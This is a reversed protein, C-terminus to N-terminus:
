NRREAALASMTLRLRWNFNPPDHSNIIRVYHMHFRSMSAGEMWRQRERVRLQEYIRQWEAKLRVPDWAGDLDVGCTRAMSRWEVVWPLQQRIGEWALIRPLRGDPLALARLIYQVHIPLAMLFMSTRGTELKLVYRPTHMPLAFLRRIFNYQSREVISCERYGWVQATYLIVSKAASDYVRWKVGVAIGSRTMMPWLKNVAMSAAMARDQFHDTLSLSSTMTVGLYKYGRVVEIPEGGWGGPKLKQKKGEM